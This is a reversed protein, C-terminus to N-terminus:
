CCTDPRPCRCFSPSGEVVGLVAAKIVDMHAAIQAPVEVALADLIM